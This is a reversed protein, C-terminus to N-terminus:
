HVFLFVFVRHLFYFFFRYSICHKTIVSFKSNMILNQDDGLKQGRTIQIGLGPIAHFLKIRGNFELNPGSLGQIKLQQILKIM